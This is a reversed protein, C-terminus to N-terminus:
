RGLRPSKRSLGRGQRTSQGTRGRGRGRSPGLAPDRFTFRQAPPAPVEAEAYVPAVIQAPSQLVKADARPECAIRYVAEAEERAEKLRLQKVQEKDTLSGHKSADRYGQSAPYAWRSLADAVTNDKGPVHYLALNFESLVEHWRLRRGAPGSPTDIEETHWEKLAEHDSLVMVHRYGIWSKWKLLAQVIAYTEQERAVWKCQGETLKRSFFAVPVTKQNKVDEQTPRRNEDLLQELTAGIAYGSADVRLVFDKDPNVRQLVLGACLRNKIEQFIQQDEPTWTIPVKSGEKGVDRPVKLKDQLKAVLKAYEKVYSSYYNTFGLFSRLQTITTPTEWKEIALLKGPAPRRTGGGLIHGCFEVEPVFLRCKSIDVILKQEKLVEIVRKLDKEHQALLEGEGELRTGVIIDDIYCDAVDKVSELVSEMMKQFQISANKLRM